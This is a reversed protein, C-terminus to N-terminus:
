DDATKRRSRRRSRSRLFTEKIGRLTYGSRNLRRVLRIRRVLDEDFWRGHRDAPRIPEILGIMIYYEITQRSVGARDAAASIRM